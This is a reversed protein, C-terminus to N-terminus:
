AFLISWEITLHSTHTIIVPVALVSVVVISILIFLKPKDSIINDIVRLPKGVSSYM